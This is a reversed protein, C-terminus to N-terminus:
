GNVATILAIDVLIIVLSFTCSLNFLADDTTRSRTMPPLIHTPPPKTHSFVTLIYLM